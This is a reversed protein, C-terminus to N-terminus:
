TASFAPSNGHRYRAPRRQVQAATRRHGGRDHAQPRAQAQAPFRGHEARRHGAGLARRHPPFLEGSRASRIIQRWTRCSATPKPWAPARRADPLRDRLRRRGAAAPLRNGPRHYIVIGLLLVAGCVALTLWPHGLARRVVTEYLRIVRQLLFGGQGASPRTKRAATASCGPPWRPRSAHHGAGAVDAAVRGDDDGPRPLLRRHRRGPVGAPHVGRGADADLRGLAPLNRRHGQQVAELQGLRGHTKTHIAEVVVIADDIVLGIAAAIGGLTMLNFSMGALKM